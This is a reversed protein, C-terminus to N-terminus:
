GYIVDGCVQRGEPVPPGLGKVDFGKTEVNEHSSSVYIPPPSLAHYTRDSESPVARSKESGFESAPENQEAVAESTTSEEQRQESPLPFVTEEVPEAAVRTPNSLLYFSLFLLWVVLPECRM